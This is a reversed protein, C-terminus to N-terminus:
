ARLLDTREAMTIRLNDEGLQTCTAKQACELIQYRKELDNIQKFRSKNLHSAFATSDGWIFGKTAEWVIAPDEVSDRKM